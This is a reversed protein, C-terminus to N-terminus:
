IRGPSAMSFCPILIKQLEGSPQFGAPWLSLVYGGRGSGTPKVALAGSERLRSMHNQIAGEALGWKEFCDGALSLSKRLVERGEPESMSLAREAMQVSEQMQADLRHGEEPNKAILAKVQNVCELTVGRQGSYSVYLEPRWALSKLNEPKEGRLFRLPRGSVAVAIDVGSSEGHFLNELTRAFESVESAAIVDLAAFWRSMAVCLAASAGLGAGVPIDSHLHVSGRFRDRTLGKLDCAKELVGWFLIQLEAGYEGSLKLDM